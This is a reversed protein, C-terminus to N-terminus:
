KNKIKFVEREFSNELLIKELTSKKKLLKRERDSLIDYPAHEIDSISDMENDYKVRHLRNKDLYFLDYSGTKAKKSLGLTEYIFNLDEEQYINKNTKEYIM